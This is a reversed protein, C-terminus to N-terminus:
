LMIEKPNLRLIYILPFVASGIITLVGVIMFTLMYSPSFEVKYAAQLGEKTLDVDQTYLALADYYQEDETEQVSTALLDSQILSDSVKEGLLNGTVLSCAMAMIGVALLEVVIQWIVKSRKEGLSLYIGLEHKRDRSFLVVILSIIVLAALVAAIVVYESLTRLKGVSGEVKEYEDTTTRVQFFEPLLPTTESKFAEVDDTSKLVYVPEPLSLNSVEIENGAEDTYNAPAIEEQKKAVTDGIAEISANTMYITNHQTTDIYGDSSTQNTTLKVPDFVGIIEVSFKEALTLAGESDTVHADLTAKDGVSLNNQEALQKSVLALPQDKEAEKESFFHGDVLKVLGNKFDSPEDANAGKLEFQFGYMEASVQEYETLENPSYPRFATTFIWTSITYDYTEVYTSAGIKDILTRDLGTPLVTTNEELFSDTDIDVVAVAGLDAKIKHEVNDTSQKIAIAGAIVNGLIFVVLFLILSKGKRRVISYFARNLFNM